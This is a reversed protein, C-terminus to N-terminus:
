LTVFQQVVGVGLITFGYVACVEAINFKVKFENSGALFRRNTAMHWSSVLSGLTLFALPITAVIRYDNEPVFSGFFLFDPTPEMWILIMSVLFVGWSLGALIILVLSKIWQSIHLAVAYSFVTWVLLSQWPWRDTLTLLLGFYCIVIIPLAAVIKSFFLQNRSVPHHYLTCELGQGENTSYAGAGATVPLFVALGSIILYPFSNQIEFIEMRTTLTAMDPRVLAYIIAVLLLGVSLVYLMGDQAIHKFVLGKFVTRSQPTGWIKPNLSFHFKKWALLAPLGFILVMYWISILAGEVQIAERAGITLRAGIWLSCEGILTIMFIVIQQKFYFSAAIAIFYASFIAIFLNVPYIGFNMERSNHIIPAGEPLFLAYFIVAALYLFLLFSAGALVKERLVQFKSLPLRKLFQDTGKTEEDAIVNIGVVMACITHMVFAVILCGAIFTERDVEWGLRDAFLYYAVIWELLIFPYVLLWLSARKLDKYFIQSIM